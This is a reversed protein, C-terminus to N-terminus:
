YVFCRKQIDICDLVVHFIFVAFQSLVNDHIFKFFVNM